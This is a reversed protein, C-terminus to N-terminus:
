APKIYDSPGSSLWQAREREREGREKEGGKRRGRERERERERERKRQGRALLERKEPARLSERPV